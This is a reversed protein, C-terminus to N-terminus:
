SHSQCPPEKFQLWWWACNEWPQLQPLSRHVGCTGIGGMYGMSCVPVYFTCVIIHSDSDQPPVLSILALRSFLSHSSSNGTVCSLLFSCVSVLLGCLGLWHSVVWVVDVMVVCCLSWWPCIGSGLLVPGVFASLSCMPCLQWVAGFDVHGLSHGDGQHCFVILVLLGKGSSGM